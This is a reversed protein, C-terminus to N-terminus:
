RVLRRARDLEVDHVFVLRSEPQDVVSTPRLIPYHTECECLVTPPADQRRKAWYVFGGEEAQVASGVSGVHTQRSSVESSCLSAGISRALWRTSWRTSEPRSRPRSLNM